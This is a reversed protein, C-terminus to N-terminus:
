RSESGGRGDNLLSGLWCDSAHGDQEGLMCVPCAPRQRYFGGWEIERLKKVEVPVVANKATM